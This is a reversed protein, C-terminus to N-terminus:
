YVYPFALVPWDSIADCTLAVLCCSRKAKTIHRFSTNFSLLGVKETEFYALYKKNLDLVFWRKKWSKRVESICLHFHKFILCKTGTKRNSKKKKKKRYLIYHQLYVGKPWLRDVSALVFSKRLLVRSGIYVFSKVKKVVSVPSSASGSHIWLM